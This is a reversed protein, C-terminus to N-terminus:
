ILLKGTKNKDNDSNIIANFLSYNGDPLELLLQTPKYNADVFSTLLSGSGRIM